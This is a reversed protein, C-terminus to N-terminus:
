IVSMKLAAEACDYGKNGHKGGSRELSQQYNDDTLLCLIVPCGPKLNLDKIGNCVSQSIFDFHKTEGKIISGVAIIADLDNNKKMKACGYILEFSGPVKYQLISDRKIGVDNFFKFVGDLLRNIIELNWESSVLGFKKSQINRIFNKKFLPKSKLSM